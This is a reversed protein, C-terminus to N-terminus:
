QNMKTGKSGDDAEDPDKPNDPSTPSSGCGSGAAGGSNIMVMTGVISVGAPNIDIFNSGVKLCIETGAELVVTMGAKLHIM